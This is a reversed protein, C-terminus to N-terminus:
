RRADDGVSTIIISIIALIDGSVPITNFVSLLPQNNLVVLLYKMTIRTQIRDHPIARASVSGIFVFFIRAMNEKLCARGHDYLM